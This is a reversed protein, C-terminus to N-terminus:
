VVPPLPRLDPEVFRQRAEDSDLRQASYYTRITSADRYRALLPNVREVLPLEPDTSALEAALLRLWFVTVTEKYKVRAATPDGLNRELFGLLGTRMRSSAGDLGHRALYTLAVALHAQHSFGGPPAEGREFAAVLADLADDDDFTLDPHHSM